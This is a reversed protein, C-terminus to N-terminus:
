LKPMTQQEQVFRKILQQQLIGEVIALKLKLLEMLKVLNLKQDGFVDLALVAIEM